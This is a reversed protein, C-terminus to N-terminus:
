EATAQRAKEKDAYFTDVAKRFAPDRYRRKYEDAPMKDLAAQGTFTQAERTAMIQGSRRDREIVAPMTYTIQDVAKAPSPLAANNGSTIDRTLGSAPRAARTQQAQTTETIRSDVVTELQSNVPIESPKAVVPTPEERVIPAPLLLGVESLKTFAYEFNACTPALDNKVMWSTITEFNEQCAYYNPTTQRFLEAEGKAKLIMNEEELRRLREGVKAEVLRNSAEDIKEPDLLDHAIEIAEDASFSRPQTEVMQMRSVGEPIEDSDLLGLRNKKHLERNLKITERHAKAVKDLVEQADKGRYIQVAGLPRNYDDLPQYQYVFEGPQEVISSSQEVVPLVPQEVPPVGVIPGGVETIPGGESVMDEVPQEVKTAPEPPTPQKEVRTLGIAKAYEEAPMANLQEETYTEAM